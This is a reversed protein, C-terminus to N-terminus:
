LGELGDMAKVHLLVDLKAERLAELEAKNTLISGDGSLVIWPPDDNALTTIWEIDTSRINFRTADDHHKM